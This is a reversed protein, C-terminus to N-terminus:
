NKNTLHKEEKTKRPRRKWERRETKQIVRNRQQGYDMTSALYHLGGRRGPRPSRRALRYLNFNIDVKEGKEIKTVISRECGGAKKEMLLRSKEEMTNPNSTNSPRLSKKTHNELTRENEVLRVRNGGGIRVRM